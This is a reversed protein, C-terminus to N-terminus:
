MCTIIRLNGFPSLRGSLVLDTSLLSSRFRRFETHKCMVLLISTMRKLVEGDEVDNFLFGLNIM